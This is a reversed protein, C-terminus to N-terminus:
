RRSPPPAACGRLRHIYATFTSGWSGLFAGAQSCIVMEVVGEWRRGLFSVINLRSVSKSCYRDRYSLPAGM